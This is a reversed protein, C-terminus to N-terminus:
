RNEALQQRFKVNLRVILRHCRIFVPQLGRRFKVFIRENRNGRRMVAFFFGAVQLYQISRDTDLFAPRFEAGRANGEAGRAHIFGDMFLDFRGIGGVAQVAFGALSLTREVVNAPGDGFAGAARSVLYHLM